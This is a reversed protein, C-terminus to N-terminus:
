SRPPVLDLLHFDDFNFGGAVGTEFNALAGDFGAFECEDGRVHLTRGALLRRGREATFM